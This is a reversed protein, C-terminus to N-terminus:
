SVLAEPLTVVFVHLLPVHPSEVPCGQLWEGELVLTFIRGWVRFGLGKVRFRLVRSEKKREFADVAFYGPSRIASVVDRADNLRLAHKHVGCCPVEGRIALCTGQSSLLIVLFFEVCLM